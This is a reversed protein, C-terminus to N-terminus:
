ENLDGFATGRLTSLAKRGYHDTLEGNREAKVLPEELSRKAGRFWSTMVSVWFVAISAVLVFSITGFLLNWVFPAETGEHLFTLVGYLVLGAVM